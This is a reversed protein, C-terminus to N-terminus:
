VIEFGPKSFYDLAATTAAGIDEYFGITDVDGYSDVTYLTGSDSNYVVSLVWVSSNYVSGSNGHVAVSFLKYVDM